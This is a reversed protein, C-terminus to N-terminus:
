GKEGWSVLPRGSRGAVHGGKRTCEMPEKEKANLPPSWAPLALTSVLLAWRGAGVSQAQARGATSEETMKDTKM